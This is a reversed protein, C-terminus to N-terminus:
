NRDYGCNYSPNMEVQSWGGIASIGYDAENVSALCDRTAEVVWDAFWKPPRQYIRDLRLDLQQEAATDSGLYHGLM